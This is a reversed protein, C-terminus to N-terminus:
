NKHLKLYLFQTYDKLVKLFMQFKCSIFYFVIEEGTFYVKYVICAHMCVYTCSKKELFPDIDLSKKNKQVKLTSQTSQIEYLVIIQAQGM